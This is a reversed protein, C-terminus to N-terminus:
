ELKEGILKANAASVGYTKALAPWKVLSSQTKDIIDRMRGKAIKADEGLKLLHDINPNRGEGMVM